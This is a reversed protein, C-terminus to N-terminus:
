RLKEIIAVAWWDVWDSGGETCHEGMKTSYWSIFSNHTYNGSKIIIIILNVWKREKADEKLLLIQVM